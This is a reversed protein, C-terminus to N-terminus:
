FKHVARSGFMKEFKRVKKGLPEPEHRDGLDKFCEYTEFSCKKSFMKRKLYLNYVGNNVGETSSYIQRFNGLKTFLSVGDADTIKKDFEDIIKTTTNLNGGGIASAIDLLENSAPIYWGEPYYEKLATFIEFNKASDPNEEMYKFIIKTNAAGDNPDEAGIPKPTKKFLGKDRWSGYIVDLSMILGHQGSEDVKVVIGKKGGLEMIDGIKYTQANLMLTSAIMAVLTLIIKKM